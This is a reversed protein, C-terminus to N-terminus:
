GLDISGAKGTVVATIIAGVALALAAMVAIVITQSTIGGRDDTRAEDLREALGAALVTLTATLRQAQTTM